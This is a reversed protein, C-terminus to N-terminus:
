PDTRIATSGCDPHPLLAFAALVQPNSCIQSSSGVFVNNWPARTIDAIRIVNFLPRSGAFDAALYSKGDIGRLIANGRRDDITLNTSQSIWPGVGIPVIQRDANPGFIVTGDHEQINETVGSRVITDRVCTGLPLAGTMLNDWFARTGSGAQPILPFFGFCDPSGPVGNQLYITQLDALPLNKPVQSQTFTAYTLADLAFPIYTLNAGDRVQAQSDNNSSRAFDVCQSPYSNLGQLANVGATSGNPRVINTCGSARTTIPGGPLADWSALGLQGGVMVGPYAPTSATTGNGYGNMVLQTTDSGVGQLARFPPQPPDPDALATGAALSLTALCAGAALLFSRKRM